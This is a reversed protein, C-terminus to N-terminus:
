AALHQLLYERDRILRRYHSVMMRKGDLRPGSIGNRRWTTEFTSHLGETKALKDQLDVIEAVLGARIDEITM